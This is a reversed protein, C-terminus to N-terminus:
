DFTEIPKEDSHLTVSSVASCTQLGTRSKSFDVRFM